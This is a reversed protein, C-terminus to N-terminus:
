ETRIVLFRFLIEIHRESHLSTPAESGAVPTPEVSRSRRMAQLVRTRRDEETDASGDSATRSTDVSLSPCTTQRPAGSATAERTCGQRRQGGISWQGVPRRM